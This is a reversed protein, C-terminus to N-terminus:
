DAGFARHLFAAVQGRPTVAGPCFSSPGCGSSLGAAAVANIDAEHVSDDDDTFFDQDTPPLALIRVLFTALQGRKVPQNPCFENPACGGAFGAEALSNIDAEHVSGDDDTYHDGTPPPLELARVFMTALQGRTTPNYTCFLDADCGGAIGTDRAWDIDGAFLSTSWDNICTTGTALVRVTSGTSGFSVKAWNCNNSESTEDFYNYLDVVNRLTYTGAPLGTIDIWQYAFNWPYKDGWGVSIGNRTTTSFQTGCWSEKYVGSNPAGPLSLDRANTDFFCFGIKQDRFTGNKSWLHYAMMQRVHWHNHGDGAYRMAADTQVRRSGGADNYIVQDVTFPTSVNPRHARTEFAGRGLNNMMSTFRLYRHGGSTTIRLDTIRSTRLDPLRDAAATTSPPLVGGLVVAIGAALAFRAALHALSPRSVSQRYV